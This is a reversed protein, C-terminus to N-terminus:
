EEGVINRDQGGGQNRPDGRMIQEPTLGRMFLANQYRLQSNETELKANAALLADREKELEDRESQLVDREQELASIKLGFRWTENDTGEGVFETM